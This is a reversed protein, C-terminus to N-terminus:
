QSPPRPPLPDNISKPPQAPLLHVGSSVIQQAPRRFQLEEADQPAAITRGTQIMLRRDVEAGYATHALESQTLSVQTLSDRPGLYLLADAVDSMKVTDPAVIGGTVVPMAPLDGVWNSALPVIVPPSWADFRPDLDDYSGVANTGFVVLYPQVGEARIAREVLGPGRRRLFHGAGMILLARHKKSLVEDKVVQAYWEDRHALYPGLDERDKIKEWDGYPDGLLIRIQHGSGRHQLNSERVAKYFSEYVPSVPGVAGIMNRWAKQAQELPIDEGAIYRDISKQYLSNGFEVVIDDVQNAFGPIKVLQCLWEYEQKNAHTEGFMVIPHEHILQIMEKTADIPVVPATQPDSSLIVLLALVHFSRRLV